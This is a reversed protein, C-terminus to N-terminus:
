AIFLAPSVSFFQAFKGALKTSINRKGALIASLNGQAIVSALDEQKLGRADMLFRLAEAPTAPEIRLHESEYAAVLDSLIDLFGALPHEEDEGVADLVADMLSVMRDYDSESHISRLAAVSEFALWSAQLAQIDFQTQATRM